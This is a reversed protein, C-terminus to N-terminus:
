THLVFFANRKSSQARREAAGVQIVGAIGSVQECSDDAM